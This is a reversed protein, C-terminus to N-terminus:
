RKVLSVSSKDGRLGSIGQFGYGIASLGGLSPPRVYAIYRGDEDSMTHGLLQYAGSHDTAFIRVFAKSAPDKQNPALLKGNLILPKEMVLNLESQGPFAFEVNYLPLASGVPPLVVGKCRGADLWVKQCSQNLDTTKNGCWSGSKDSMAQVSWVLNPLVQAARADQYSCYIELKAGELPLNYFSSVTGALHRRETLHIALDGGDLAMEEVLLALSSDNPPVVAVVYTQPPIHLNIWGDADTFGDTKSFGASDKDSKSVLYVHFNAAPENKASLVRIKQSVSDLIKLKIVGVEISGEKDFLLEQNFYPGLAQKNAPAIELWLKKTESYLPRALKLRFQEGPIVTALSSVQHGDQVMRVELSDDFAATSSIAISGSVETLTTATFQKSYDQDATLSFFSPPRNNEGGSNVIVMYQNTSALSLNFRGEDNLTTSSFIQSSVANQTSVPTALLAIVDTRGRSFPIKPGSRIVQASDEVYGKFAVSARLAVTDVINGQASVKSIFQTVLGSATQPEVELILQASFEACSSNICAEDAPAPASSAPASATSINLQSPEAPFCGQCLAVWAM